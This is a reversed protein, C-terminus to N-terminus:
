FTPARLNRVPQPGPWHQRDGGPAAPPAMRCAVREHPRGEHDKRGEEDVRDAIRHPEAKVLPVAVRRAPPREDAELVIARQGTVLHEPPGREIGDHEDRYSGRELHPESKQQGKQQIAPEDRSRQQPREEEHRDDHRQDDDRDDELADELRVGPEEIRKEARHAEAGERMGPEAIRGGRQRGDDRDAHPLVYPEAEHDQQRPKLTQRLVDHFGGPDVARVGPLEGEAHDRREHARDERQRREQRDDAPQLDEVEDEDHRPAPRCIRGLHERGHEIALGELQVV